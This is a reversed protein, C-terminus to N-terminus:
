CNHISMVGINSHKLLSINVQHCFECSYPSVEKTTDHKKIEHIIKKHVSKFTENCEHCKLEGPIGCLFKVCETKLLYVDWQISSTFDHIKNPMNKGDLSQLFNIDEEFDELINLIKRQELIEPSQQKSGKVENTANESENIQTQLKM